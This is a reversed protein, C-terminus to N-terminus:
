RERVLWRELDKRSLVARRGLERRRRLMTPLLRFYSALVKARLVHPRLAPRARSRLGGRGARVLMSASTLPYHLVERVALPASADKTLMLLRNRDVHFTWLPSWETSSASHLHRLVATPQYRISWGDARLRWSLDTDEYYLFFDDDFWGAARGAATRMAMGNGCANFVETPADYQGTDPEQFGRDAGYGNVLVIGGANNVVDVLPTGEPVALVAESGAEAATATLHIGEGTLTVSKDREAIWRFTLKVSDPVGGTSGGAGDRVPVLFTGEPRTWRFRGAGTGEPGYALKEWLVKETVDRGDVEVALLRVGLPRTDHPGPTFGETRLTLPLFRPTFVVKGTVVGLRESGVADFPALLNRLWDPEPVADNNLLVAYPTRVTRLALNNGGAFGTNVQSAIVRVEPFDRALLELSGDVSANDVVVTEFSGAPVDQRRLGELCPPLLHAGNYNVVVVTARPETV